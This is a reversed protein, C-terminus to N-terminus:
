HHTPHSAIKVKEISIPKRIKDYARVFERWLDTNDVPKGHQNCWKNHRWHTLASYYYKSVYQSDTRIVVSYVQEYCEMSPAMKLATVPAELEMRQNTTGKLSPAIYTDLEIENGVDDYHLFLVGFGGKRGKPYCSGDTYIVLANEAIKVM